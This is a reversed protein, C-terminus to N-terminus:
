KAFSYTSQIKVLALDDPFTHMAQIRLSKARTEVHVFSMGGIAMRGSADFVQILEHNKASDGLQKQILWFLEPKVRELEHEYHYSIGGRCEITEAHKECMPNLLLRRSKPLPQHVSAAVETLTSTGAKLQIVHGDTTIDVRACFGDREILHSKVIHFLEPHLSRNFFQFTLQAVKPRITSTTM